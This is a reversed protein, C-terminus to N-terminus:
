ADGSEPDAELAQRTLEEESVDSGSLIEQAASLFSEPVSLTVGNGASGQPTIGVLPGSPYANADPDVICCPIGTRALRGAMIEAGAFTLQDAVQRLQLAERLGDILSRQVKVAYSDLQAGSWLNVVDCPVGLSAIFEALTAAALEDTFRAFVDTYETKM